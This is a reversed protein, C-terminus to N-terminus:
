ELPVMTSEGVTKSLSTDGRVLPLWFTDMVSQNCTPRNTARSSV